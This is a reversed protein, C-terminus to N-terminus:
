HPGMLDKGYSGMVRLCTSKGEKGLTVRGRRPCKGAQGAMRWIELYRSVSSVSDKVPLM